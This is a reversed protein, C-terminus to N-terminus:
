ELVECGAKKYSSCRKRFAKVTYRINDIYDYCVPNKKGEFVRAIRGVSQVVVAYDKQPTTLHLRDLRPIDLGEKALQYTAFLYRKKGDRMDQIAQEREARGKKSAMKGDIVAAQAQLEPPLSQYLFKLHEVRDSLILNYHDANNGLMWLILRNREADGTLYSILKTYNLTGDTNSCLPSMKVGTYVPQVEVKMVRSSVAADPVQYIVDGLLAYTSKILGDARHVTASLGYKHRAALANLVKSFQTVATPSGSVRHCEDVIICDWYARYESLDMKCMTQITAFTIASGIDAKGATITGILGPSIYQEARQKSQTLLDTTHTLWLTRVGLQCALALGMQTKGSGAPSQFIGYQADLAAKVGAVQYDYLPVNAGYNVHVPEPLENNIEANGKNFLPLLSRLCGFPVVLVGMVTSYLQIKAPTDRVWFGMRLKKNYEPNPLILNDHCWRLVEETPHEIWLQSYIRVKM